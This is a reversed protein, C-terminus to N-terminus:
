STPVEQRRTPDAERGRSTVTECRGRCRHNGGRSVDEGGTECVQLYSRAAPPTMPLPLRARALRFASRRPLSAGGDPPAANPIPTPLRAGVPGFAGGAPRSPTTPRTRSWSTTQRGAARTVSASARRSSSAAARAPARRQHLGEVVLDRDRDRVEPDVPGAPRLDPPRQPDTPLAGTLAEAIRATGVSVALVRTTWLREPSSALGRGENRM